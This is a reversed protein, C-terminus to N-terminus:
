DGAKRLLSRVHKVDIAYTIGSPKEIAAEKNEKVLVSNIVGLVEGTAQDYVASGSNGPYATTDLQLVLTGRRMARVMTPTITKASPQPQALPTVASVIGRHTVPYLGLVMGLPFGTFAIESGEKVQESHGLNLAPLPTSIYLLALDNALDKALVRAEHFRIDKGRGSYVALTEKSKRSLSEPLVHYNTVVHHGDGVVFGSGRFAQRPRGTPDYTGVAVVSPKIKELTEPLPNHSFSADAACCCILLLFLRPLFKTLMRYDSRRLPGALKRDASDYHTYDM